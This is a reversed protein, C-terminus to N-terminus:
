SEKRWTSYAIIQLYFRLFVRPCCHPYPFLHLVKESAINILVISSISCQNKKKSQVKLKFDARLFFFSFDTRSFCVFSVFLLDGGEHAQTDGLVSCGLSMLKLVEKIATHCQSKVLRRLWINNLVDKQTYNGVQEVTSFSSSSRGTNAPSKPFELFSGVLSSM